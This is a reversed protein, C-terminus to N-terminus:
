QAIVIYWAHKLCESLAVGVSRASLKGKKNFEHM